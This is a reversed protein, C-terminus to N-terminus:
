RNRGVQLVNEANTGIVLNINANDKVRIIEILEKNNDLQKLAIFENPTLGLDRMYAKDAKARASEAKERAIEAAERKDQTEKAQIQAATRDMEEIVADNPRARGTIVDILKIPLGKEKIIKELTIRLEGNIEEYVTRDSTLRFMPYKSIQARVMERYLAQINNEFWKLGFNKYLIPSKGSEIQLSLTVQLNVPTNNQTIVDNFEEDYRLPIMDFIETDTSWAPFYRDGSGPKDHVGAGGFLWPKGIFVVEQTEDVSISYCGSLMFVAVFMTALLSFIKRM